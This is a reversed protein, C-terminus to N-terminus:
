NYDPTLFLLFSYTYTVDIKINQKKSHGESVGESSVGTTLLIQLIIINCKMMKKDRKKEHNSKWQQVCNYPGDEIRESVQWIELFDLLLLLELIFNGPKLFLVLVAVHCNSKDKFYKQMLNFIIRSTMKNM